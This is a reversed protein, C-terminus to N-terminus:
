TSSTKTGAYRFKLLLKDGVPGAVIGDIQEMGSDDVVHTEFESYITAASVKLGLNTLAIYRLSSFSAEAIYLM